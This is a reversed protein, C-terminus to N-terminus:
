YTITNTAEGFFHKSILEQATYFENRNCKCAIIFCLEYKWLNEEYEQKGENRNCQGREKVNKNGRM